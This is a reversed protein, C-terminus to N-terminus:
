AVVLAALAVGLPVSLNDDFSGPFREAMMAMGAIALAPAPLFDALLWVGAFAVVLCAASGAASKRSSASSHRRWARGAIAAVPDAGTTCWLTAIAPRAPLVLIAAFSAVALWTAGTIGHRERERLMPGVTRTFVANAAPWAHRAWEVALAVASVFGLVTLLVYRDVGRAYMLPLSVAIFHITKRASEPDVTGREASM